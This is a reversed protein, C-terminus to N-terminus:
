CAYNGLTVKSAIVMQIIDPDTLAASEGEWRYGWRAYAMNDPSFGPHCTIDNVGENLRGLCAKLVRKELHGSQEVAYSFDPFHVGNKNIKQMQAQASFLLWSKKLAGRCTFRAGGNLRGPYRIWKIGYKVALRVVVDLIDPFLHVYQHSDLHTPRIGKAMVKTIQSELELEVERLDIRGTCLRLLFHRYSPHLCGDKGVLSPLNVSPLVPKEAVLCLHVGVGIGPLDKILDLAENFKQGGAVVSVSRVIGARCAHAIGSNIRTDIGFDDANVVLYKEGIVAELMM